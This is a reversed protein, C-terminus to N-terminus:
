RWRRLLLLGALLVLLPPASAVLWPEGGYVLGAHAVTESGLKFALGTLVGALVRLGVGHGGLPGLVMGVSLLLMALVSFPAALRQWWVLRYRDVRMGAQALGDIYRQLEPLLFTDPRRGLLRALRPDVLGSVQRSAANQARIAEPAFYTVRLGHLLWGDAVPEAEEAAAATVLAPSDDLEYIRVGSLRGDATARRVQIMQRGHRVWFGGGGQMGVDTYIAGTRLAGAQLSAVPAALEGVPLALLLMFCGSLLVSAALRAPSCGALRFANLEGQAALNGLGLLTGILAAMPFTQWARGPLSLLVYLAAQQWGYSGRGIDGLEGLFAFLAELATVVLWALLTSSLLTRALYRDLRKM